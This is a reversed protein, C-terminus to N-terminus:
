KINNSRLGQVLHLPCFFYFWSREMLIWSISFYFCSPDAQDTSVMICLVNNLYKCFNYFLQLICLSNFFTTHTKKKNQLYNFQFFIISKQLVHWGMTCPWSQYLCNAQGFKTHIQYYCQVAPRCLCQCLPCCPGV